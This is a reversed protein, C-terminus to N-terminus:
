ITYDITHRHVINHLKNHQRSHKGTTIALQITYKVIAYILTCYGLWIFSMKHAIIQNDGYVLMYVPTYTYNIVTSDITSDKKNGTTTTSQQINVVACQLKAFVYKQEAICVRNGPQIVIFSM